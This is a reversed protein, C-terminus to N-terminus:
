RKQEIPKSQYAKDLCTNYNKRHRNEKPKNSVFPQKIFSNDIVDATVVKLHISIVSSFVVSLPIGNKDTLIHRQKAYNAEVDVPNNGLTM